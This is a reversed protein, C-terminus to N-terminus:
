RINVRLSVRVNVREDTIGYFPIAIDTQRRYEVSDRIELGLVQIELGPRM